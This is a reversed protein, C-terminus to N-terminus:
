PTKTQNLKTYKPKWPWWVNPCSYCVRSENWPPGDANVMWGMKRGCKPCKRKSSPQPSALSGDANKFGHLM